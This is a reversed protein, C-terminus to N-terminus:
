PVGKKSFTGINVVIDMMTFLSMYYKMENIPLNKVFVHQITSFYLQILFTDKTFDNKLHIETAHEALVFLGISVGSYNLLLARIKTSTSGQM